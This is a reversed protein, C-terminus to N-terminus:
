RSYKYTTEAPVVSICSLLGGSVELRKGKSNGRDTGENYRVESFLVLACRSQARNITMWEQSNM